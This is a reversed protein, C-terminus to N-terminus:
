QGDIINFSKLRDTAWLSRIPRHLSYNAFIYNAHVPRYVKISM